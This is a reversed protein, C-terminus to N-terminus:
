NALGKTMWMKVRPFANTKQPIANKLTSIPQIESQYKAALGAAEVKM